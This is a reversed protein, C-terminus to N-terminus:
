IEMIQSNFSEKFIPLKILNSHKERKELCDEPNFSPMELRPKKLPKYILMVTVPLEQMNRFKLIKILKLKIEYVGKLTNIFPKM